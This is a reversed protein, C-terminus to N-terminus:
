TPRRLPVRAAAKQHRVVDQRLHRRCVHHRQARRPDTRRYADQISSVVFDKQANFMRVALDDILAAMQAKWVARREPDAIHALQQDVLANAANKWRQVAANADSKLVLALAPKLEEDSAPREPPTGGAGGITQETM